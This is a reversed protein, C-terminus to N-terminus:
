PKPEQTPLRGSWGLAVEVRPSATPDREVEVFVFRQGDPSVDWQVLPATATVYALTSPLVEEARGTHFTEGPLVEVGMLPRKPDDIALYFIENSETSWNPYSGIGASVQWKGPGSVPRVYSIADGSAPSNYTIWRGDPSFSPSVADREFLRPAEGESKLYIDATAGLEQYALTKGDASWSAPLNPVSSREVLQVEPSAGEVGKAFITSVDLNSYAIRLGDRSWTPGGRSSDFTLRELASTKLTYIWLDGTPSSRSSSVVVALREGEPSFRPTQSGRLAGPLRTAKGNRDVLTLFSNFQAASGPIFALTGNSSVDFYGAGSSPEGGVGQVVPAPTGLIEVKEPDFEVSFLMNSRLFVVHRPPAFRGMNAGDLLAHREGTQLDFVELRAGEYNNPNQVDGVTYLLLRGDASLDPWRFTREGSAEDPEVVPEARGGVTPVRWIGSTYEPSYYISSGDPSWIGGRANPSPALTLPQDGTVRVKRLENPAFFGLWDGDPSFFPASGDRTGPVARAETQDFPRLFIENRGSAPNTASFALFRGDPSLAISPVDVFQLESSAPFGVSFRTVPEPASPGGSAGEGGLAGGGLSLRLGLLAAVLTAAAAVWWGFRAFTKPSSRETDPHEAADNMGEELLLRVDGADHLRQRPDKALCRQLLRRVSKPVTSPLAEWDPEEHIVAALTEALSDGPFAKVGALMEFLLSGLAWIDAARDAVRGKAQEPSMYAATGMLVGAATAQYTMTPSRTMAVGMETGLGAGSGNASDGVRALGFDLLKVLGEPTVMVNAPKLDRHIIGQGHAAAVADAAQSFIAAAEESPIPGRQIREALNEGPVLEMALFQTKEVEGIEYIGAINPHNLSALVKAEREFRALREPDTVFAQPLVKIAVERGLKTDEARYVEGM